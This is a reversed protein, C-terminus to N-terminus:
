ELPLISVEVDARRARWNRIFTILVALVYIVPVLPLALMVQGVHSNIRFYVPEVRDLHVTYISTSDYTNSYNFEILQWDGHNEPAKVVCFM